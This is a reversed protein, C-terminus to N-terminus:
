ARESDRTKENSFRNLSAPDPSLVGGSLEPISVTLKFFSTSGRLRDLATAVASRDYVDM